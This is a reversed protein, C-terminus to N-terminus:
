GLRDLFKITFCICYIFVPFFFSNLFHVRCIIFITRNSNWSFITELPFISSVTNLFCFSTITISFDWNWLKHALVQTWFYLFKRIVNLFFSSWWSKIVLLQFLDLMIHFKLSILMILFSFFYSIFNLVYDFLFLLYSVWTRSPSNVATPRLWTAERIRIVWRLMNLSKIFFIFM